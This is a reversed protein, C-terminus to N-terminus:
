ENSQEEQTEYKLGKEMLITAVLSKSDHRKAMREELKENLSAPITMTISILQSGRSNRRRVPIQDETPEYNVETM